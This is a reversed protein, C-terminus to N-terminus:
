MKNIDTDKRRIREAAYIILWMVLVLFPVPAAIRRWSIGAIKGDEGVAILSAFYYVFAAATITSPLIRKRLISGIDMLAEKSLYILMATLVLEFAIVPMRHSVEGEYLEGTDRICWIMLKNGVSYREPPTDSDYAEDPSYECTYDSEGSSYKLTYVFGNGEEHAETRYSVIEAQVRAHIRLFQIHEYVTFLTMWIVFFAFFLTAGGGKRKEEM